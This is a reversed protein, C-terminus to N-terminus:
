GNLEFVRYKYWVIARTITLAGYLVAYVSLEIWSVPISSNAWACLVILMTIQLGAASACLAILWSQGRPGLEHYDHERNRHMWLPALPWRVIYLFLLDIAILYGVPGSVNPNPEDLYQTAM